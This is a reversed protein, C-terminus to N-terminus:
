PIQLSSFFPHPGRAEAPLQHILDVTQPTRIFPLLDCQIFCICAPSQRRSRRRADPEGGGGDALLFGIVSNKERRL